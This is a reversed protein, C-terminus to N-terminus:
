VPTSGKTTSCTTMSAIRHSNGCTTVITGASSPQPEPGAPCSRAMTRCPRIRRRAAHLDTVDEVTPTRRRGFAPVASGNCLSPTVAAGATIRVESQDIGRIPDAKPQTRAVGHVPGGGHRGDPM